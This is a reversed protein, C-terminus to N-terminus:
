IIKALTIMMTIIIGACIVMSLFLFRVKWDSKIIGLMISLISKMAKARKHLSESILSSFGQTAAGYNPSYSCYCTYTNALGANNKKMM